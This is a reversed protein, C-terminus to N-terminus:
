WASLKQRVQETRGGAPQLELYKEYAAKAQPKWGLKAYADGLNLYPVARKPDIEIARKLQQVAAELKDLKYLAFGANNMALVFEADLEAANEFEALAEAYRRERYLQTGRDNRAVAGDPVPVDIRAKPALSLSATVAPKQSARGAASEARAEGTLRDLERNVKIAPESLEVTDESFFESEHRLEFLFEGGGGGALTGFVPKQGTLGSLIPTAYAALESALIVGDNDLDGRGALAQLMTWAFMSHGDPGSDALTQDSGCASLTQRASRRAFESLTRPMPTTRTFTLGGLCADVIFLVHKAPIAEAAEQLSVLSIAQGHINAADAEVPILYGSERGSALRRTTTHGAFFLLARDERAVRQPDALRDGFASLIRERTASQNLLTVVNEPKFRYTEILLKEMARADAVAHGLKPGHAYEDIGVVVAFSERYPATLAPSKLEAPAGTRALAFAAGSWGAFRYGANLLAELVLPLAQVSREHIDHFRIIGRQEKEVAELVRAAISAPVPDAWDGSDINWLVSKMSQASLAAFTAESRAGFPARFLAPTDPSIQRLLQNTTEIERQQAAQDLKSLLALSAGHNGLLFGSQVIRKSAEAARGLSVTADPKVTGIREGVEFFVAAPVKYQKLTELIRASRRPHPGADFTLVLTKAPLERGSFESAAANSSAGRVAALGESLPRSERLIDALPHRRRLFAVYGEWAERLPAPTAGLRAGVRGVEEDYRARIDKLADLADEIRHLLKRAAPAKAGGKLEDALDALTDYFVLKDADRLMPAREVFDVVRTVAGVDGRKGAAPLKARLQELLSQLRLQGRGALYRGVVAAADREGEEVQSGGELIVIAKRYDAVIEGLIAPPAPQPRAAPSPPACALAMATAAVRLGVCIIGHHAM